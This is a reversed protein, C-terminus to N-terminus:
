DFFAQDGPRLMRDTFNHPHPNCREGSIANVAEVDDSGHRYLFENVKAVIDNERVGPKLEESIMHYAGDVMAAARNLLAIEDASKVERAELMVQQGDAVKLGAKELEFMMPPEIIDVGVPMKGVGADRLIAAMEEAHRKMLGFAPDVTGRLGVLGAKCNEPKLWPSSLKDRAWEGIKTSTVYRINNDDFLLLAGLDSAELAAQARALRYRHMRRYDVREEFDVGMTGLVPLHRGWNYRPNIDEATIKIPDRRTIDDM